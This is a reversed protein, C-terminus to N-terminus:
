NIDYHIDFSDEQLEFATMSIDAGSVLARTLLARYLRNCELERM